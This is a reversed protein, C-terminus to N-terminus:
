LEQSLNRKDYPCLNITLESLEEQSLDIGKLLDLLEEQRPQGMTMRYLFLVHILRDYRSKDRSLPYFPVIREIYELKKRQEESLSDIPLCWYPVLESHSKKLDLKAANFMDDWGFRNDGGYLRAVNRRTALCKYRNIRGERQEIDIPNSPLNWHVIKRSYWHFDLGEQGISTTSLIFPRFPSNFAKRVSTTRKVSKDTITKDIFPVAFHCRMSLKKEEESGLSEKTDVKLNSTEIIAEGISEGIKDSGLMHAYEDLMAQMNGMVCYDLVSVYYDEDNKNGYIMDIIAAAESKNFMTVLAKGVMSADDTDFSQRYACVAPSAIAIDTLVTDLNRPIYLNEDIAMNPNDLLEMIKVINTANSIARSPLSNIVKNSSLCDWVKAKVSRRIDAIKQGFYESPTYLSALVECAYELVNGSKLRNEGYRYKRRKRNEEEEGRSIYKISKSNPNSKSLVGLTYYEAYYSMMASVMRPVMEWSSFLLIKSFHKAEESEFIGGAKYYPMSAPVWLLLQAVKGSFVSDHLYKLKGNAPSIGKYNNIQYRSLLLNDVGRGDLTPQGQLANVIKDKVVYHNMFSLLYPSSKVYEISVNGLQNKPNKENLCDMLHQCQAYSLVDEEMIPIDKVNSDDIIGTNFRETRCMVNYLSEQAEDKAKILPALDKEDIRNLAASYSEWVNKFDEIKDKKVFLFNMLEMFGHFHEDFGNANLEELTSFPKYPTASLLLIKTNTRDPNFFHKALMSQENDDGERLLDSFRQFEDMIVLDPDLMEISIEAFMHRLENIIASKEASNCSGGQEVCAILRQKLGGKMYPEIDKMMHSIYDAGCNEIKRDYNEVCYEWNDTKVGCKLFNGLGQNSSLEPMRKLIDYMVAREKITGQMTYFRFSTAPTLPIISEPMDSTNGKIAHEKETIMLHQMSLRSEDVSMKNSVGLKNINQDAINVNSCIYVVKFFDDKMNEHWQRVLNIVERAVYTKGLGVEDALLVRRQGSQFTKLIRQATLHQFDKVEDSM